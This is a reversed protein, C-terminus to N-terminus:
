PAAASRQANEATDHGDCQQDRTRDGRDDQVAAIM